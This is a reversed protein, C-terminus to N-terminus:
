FDDRAIKPGRPNDGPVPKSAARASSPKNESITVSRSSLKRRESQIQAKSFNQRCYRGVAAISVKVGHRTLTAAIQEYSMFKVRYLLIADHHPALIGRTHATPDFRRADELLRDNLENSSVRFLSELLICILLFIGFELARLRHTATQHHRLPLPTTTSYDCLLRLDNETGLM